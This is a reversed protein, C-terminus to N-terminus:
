LVPTMLGCLNELVRQRLPRRRWTMLDLEHSLSQDELVVRKLEDAFPEDYVALNTEYNLRLSRVDLNATGVLAFAGDVILAKAHIFPAPRLFIRVGARLLEEYLGRAALGAYPHNSREPVIIRVDVGRLAAARLARLIDPTPVLYPTVALLERRASSIAAFFTDTLVEVEQSTPGGNVVRVLASGAPEIPPFCDECLLENPDEETMFYWDQLFSYQLEGVIPGSIAFHYDRMPPHGTLNIGGTFAEQGDVVLLKRHNRLNVQFQRKIPNAQTWGVLRMNQTRSPRRILGSLIAETSGFRDFLVRVKVGEGARASLLELFERGVADNGLIFTQM